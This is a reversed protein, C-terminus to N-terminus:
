INPMILKELRKATEADVKANFKRCNSEHLGTALKGCCRFMSQSDSLENFVKTRTSNWEETFQTKLYQINQKKM